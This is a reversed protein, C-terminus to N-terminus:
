EAEVKGSVWGLGGAVIVAVILVAWADGAGARILLRMGVDLVVWTSVALAIVVLATISVHWVADMVRDLLTRRALHGYRHRTM